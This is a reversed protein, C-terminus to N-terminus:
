IIVKTFSKIIERVEKYDDEPNSADLCAQCVKFKTINVASLAIHMLDKADYEVACFFCNDSDKTM